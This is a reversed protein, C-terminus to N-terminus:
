VRYLTYVPVQELFPKVPRTKEWEAQDALIKEQVYIYFM